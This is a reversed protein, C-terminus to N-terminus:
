PTAGGAPTENLAADIMANFGARMDRLDGYWESASEEDPYFDPSTSKDWFALLMAETPERMAEIAARALALYEEQQASPLEEWPVAYFGSVDPWAAVRLREREQGCVLIARAVREVMGIM